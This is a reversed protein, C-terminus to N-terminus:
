EPMESTLTGSGLRVAPRSGPRRPPWSEESVAKRLIQRVEEEMSRGHLHARRMLRSKVADELRRVILQAMVSEAVVYPLARV